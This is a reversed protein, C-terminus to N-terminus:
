GRTAAGVEEWAQELFALSRRVSEIPGSAESPEHDLVEDHELVYWGTYESEELARVIGTVDLDGDGLPRYLGRKVADRYGLRGESVQEAVAASVDKLHVHAVRPAAGRALALPDGGGIMVHGTDLCLGVESVDLVREVDRPRQVVTGHHPHLAVDLGRDSALEQVRRLGRGLQSWEDPRLRDTVEYGERGSSAALVLTRGGLGAIVDASAAVADLGRRLDGEEHLVAPVFGAVLELENDRLLTRASAEPLFGEPGLETAGLGLSRMESLVRGATMQYGWGPVECVGWSIPAGAVRGALSTV